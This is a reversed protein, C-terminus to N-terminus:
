LLKEIVKALMCVGARDGTRFAEVTQLCFESVQDRHARLFKIAKNEDYENTLARVAEEVTQPTGEEQQQIIEPQEVM